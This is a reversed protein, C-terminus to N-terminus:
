RQAAVLLDASMDGVSCAAVDKTTFGTAYWDARADLGISVRPGSNLRSRGWHADTFPEDGYMQDLPVFPLSATAMIVGALCDVQRTVMGRLAQEESRRNRIARLAVDAVGYQVQLYHGMVHALEYAAQPREAFKEHLYITNQTTCFGIGRNSNRGMGCPLDDGGFEVLRPQDPFLMEVADMVALPDACVPAALACLLTVYKM